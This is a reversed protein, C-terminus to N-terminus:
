HDCSGRDPRKRTLRSVPVDPGSSKAKRGRLRWVVYVAAGVVVLGAMIEQWLM